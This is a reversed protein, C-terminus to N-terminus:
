RERRTTTTGLAAPIRASRLEDFPIRHNGDSWDLMQLEALLREASAPRDDPDLALVWALLADAASPLEPNVWTPPVPHLDPNLVLRAFDLGTEQEERWYPPRGTLLEYLISGAAYLDSASTPGLRDRLGQDVLEPAAYYRSYVAGGTVRDNWDPGHRTLLRASGFDCLVPTRGDRRLLVNRPTLDRHAMPQPLESHLVVLGRLVGTVIGIIWSLQLEQAHELHKALSGVPHHDVVVYRRDSPGDLGGDHFQVVWRSQIMALVRRERELRHRSENRREPLRTELKVVVL